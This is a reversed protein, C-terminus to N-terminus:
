LRPENHHAELAIQQWRALNKENERAESRSHLFLTAAICVIATGASFAFQDLFSPMGPLNRAARLVRDAFGPRLQGAGHRRLSQWSAESPGQAARVVRAAFDSRLQAAGHDRLAQWAHDEPNM